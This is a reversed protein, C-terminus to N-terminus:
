GRHSGICDADVYQFTWEPDRQWYRQIDIFSVKKGKFSEKMEALRNVIKEQKLGDVFQMPDIGIPYTGVQTYRGEHELGNPLTHLGLIRTCSSLFHRAYDYTHFSVTLEQKCQSLSVLLALGASDCAFSPCKGSLIASCFV